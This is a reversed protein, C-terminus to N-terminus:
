TPSPESSLRRWFAWWPTRPTPPTRPQTVIAVEESSAPLLLRTQQHAQQERALLERLEARERADSEQVSALQARYWAVEEELHRIYTAV